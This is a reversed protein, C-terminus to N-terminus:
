CFYEDDGNGFSFRYSDTGSNTQYDAARQGLTHGDLISFAQV